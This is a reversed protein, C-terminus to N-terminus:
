RKLLAFASALDQAQSEGYRENWAAEAWIDLHTIQGVLVASSELHAHRRLLQPLLVRGQKDVETEVANGIFVEKLLDAARRDDLNQIQDAVARFEAAPYIEICPKHSRTIFLELGEYDDALQQRVRAPIALRGKDDITLLHSGAFM